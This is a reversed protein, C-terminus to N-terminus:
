FIAQFEVSSRKIELWFQHGSPALGDGRSSGAVEFHHPSQASSKVQGCGNGTIIKSAWARVCM